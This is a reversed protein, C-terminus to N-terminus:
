YRQTACFMLVRFRNLAICLGYCQVGGIGDVICISCSGMSMELVKAAGQCIGAFGDLKVGFVSLHVNTLPAQAGSMYVCAGDCTNATSWANSLQRQVAQWKCGLPLPLYGGRNAIVRGM